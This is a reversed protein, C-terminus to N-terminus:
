KPIELEYLMVPEDDNPLIITKIYKLGLKELLKQSAINEKITIGSVKNIKFHPVAERLLVSASEYGYGQREHEPLFAFGIDVGEIGPRDYLGCAGLKVQDSKRIVTNNSFGTERLQPLVKAEIYKEADEVSHINRDGIYEIWKPSNYLKLFFPADETTSPRIFLRETEFTKYTSM